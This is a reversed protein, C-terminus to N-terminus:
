IQNKLLDFAKLQMVNMVYAFFSCAVIEMHGGHPDNARAQCYSSIKSITWGVLNSCSVCGKAVCGRCTPLVFVASVYMSLATLWFRFCSCPVSFSSFLYRCMRWLANTWGNVQMEVEIRPAPASIQSCFGRPQFCILNFSIYLLM